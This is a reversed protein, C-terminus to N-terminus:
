AAARTCRSGGTGRRWSAVRAIDAFGTGQMEAEGNMAIMQPRRRHPRGARRHREMGCAARQPLDLRYLLVADYRPFYRATTRLVM